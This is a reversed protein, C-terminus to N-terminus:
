SETPEAVRGAAYVAPEEGPYFLRWYKVFHARLEEASDFDWGTAREYDAATLQGLVARAFGRKFSARAADELGLVARVFHQEWDKGLGNIDMYTGSLELFLASDADADRLPEVLGRALQDVRRLMTPVRHAGHMAHVAAVSDEIAIGLSSVYLPRTSIGRRVAVALTAGHFSTKAVGIVPVSRGLAEHLRAGLGPKQQADLWVHGDVVVVDLPTVSKSLVALLPPLERRYFEGPVYPEVGEVQVTREDRAVPSSWDDFAVLAARSFQGAPDYHVDVAIPM